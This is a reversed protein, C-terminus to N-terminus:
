QSHESLNVIENIPHPKAGFFRRVIFTVRFSACAAGAGCGQSDTVAQVSRMRGGWYYETCSFSAREKVFHLGIEANSSGLLSHGIWLLIPERSALSEEYRFLVRAAQRKDRRV